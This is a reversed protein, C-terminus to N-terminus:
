SNTTASESKGQATSVSIAHLPLLVLEKPCYWCNKQPLVFVVYTNINKM